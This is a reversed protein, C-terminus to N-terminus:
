SGTTVLSTYKHIQPMLELLDLRLSGPAKFRPLESRTTRVFVVIGCMLSYCFIGDHPYIKLNQLNQMVFQLYLHLSLTCGLSLVRTARPHQTALFEELGIAHKHQLPYSHFITYTDSISHLCPFLVFVVNNTSSLHQNRKASKKLSAM